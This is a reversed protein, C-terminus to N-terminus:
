WKKYPKEMIKNQNATNAIPTPFLIMSPHMRKKFVYRSYRLRRESVAVHTFLLITMGAVKPYRHAVSTHHPVIGGRICLRVIAANAM